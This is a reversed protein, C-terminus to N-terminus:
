KGQVGHGVPPSHSPLFSKLAAGPAPKFVKPTEREQGQQRCMNMWRAKWKGKRRRRRMRMRGRNRKRRRRGWGM